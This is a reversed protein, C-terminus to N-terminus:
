PITISEKYRLYGGKYHTQEDKLVITSGSLSTPTTSLSTQTINFSDYFRGYGAPVLGASSSATITLAPHLSEVVDGSGFPVSWQFGQTILAASTLGSFPTSKWDEFVTIAYNGSYDTYQTFVNASIINGDTDKYITPTFTTLVRPLAVRRSVGYTRSFGSPNVVSDTDKLSLVSNIPTITAYSGDTQLSTGGTGAAVIQRSVPILLGTEDDYRNGSIVPGPITCYSDIVQVFEHSLPNEEPFEVKRQAVLKASAPQIVATATAGTGDGTISLSDSSAIHDGENTIVASIIQGNACVFEVTANGVSGSATTYDTGPNTITVAILATLPSGTAITPADEYIERRVTYVRDFKPFAINEEMYGIEANAQSEALTDTSWVWIVWQDTNGFQASNGPKIEKTFWLGTPFLDIVRQEAGVISAYPTGRKMPMLQQYTSDQRDRLETYYGDNQNPTNLERVMKRPPPNIPNGQGNPM